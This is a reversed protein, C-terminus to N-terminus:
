GYGNADRLDDEDMASEAKATDQGRVSRAKSEAVHDKSKEDIRPRKKSLTTSMAPIYAYIEKDGSAQKKLIDLDVLEDMQRKVQERDRELKQCLADCSDITDPYKIFFSILEM